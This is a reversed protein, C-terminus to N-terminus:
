HVVAFQWRSKVNEPCAQLLKDYAEIVGVAYMDKLEVVYGAENQGLAVYPPEELFPFTNLLQNAVLEFAEEYEEREIKAYLEDSYGSFWRWFKEIKESDVPVVFFLPNEHALIKNTSEKVEDYVFPSQGKKIAELCAEVKAAEGQIAYLMAETAERGPINPQIKRSVALADEAEEYRHMMILSTALNAYTSGLIIKESEKQTNADFCGIGARFNEEALDYECAAHHLKAVKLYPMYFRHGYENAYTYFEMMQAQNGAMESYVGMFFLFATKDEDTVCSNQLGKLKALGQSLNRNSIHNLAATLHIRAQYDDVFANELIPGFAQMHAAWSKQISASNFSKQALKDAFTQKKKM